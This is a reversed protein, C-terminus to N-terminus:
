WIVVFRVVTDDYSPTPYYYGPKAKVLQYFYKGATLDVEEDTQPEIYILGRDLTNFAIISHGSDKFDISVYAVRVGQKAANTIVDACFNQCNYTKINYTNQDTKDTELFKVMQDYTPDNFVYAYGKTMRDYNSQLNGLTSQVSGLQSEVSDLQIKEATLDRRSKELDTQSQVLDAQTSTLESQTSALNAQVQILETQKNAVNDKAELLSGNQMIVLAIVAALIVSLVAISLFYGRHSHTSGIM